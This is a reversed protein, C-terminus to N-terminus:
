GVHLFMQYHLNLEFHLIFRNVETWNNKIFNKLITAALLRFTTNVNEHIAIFVLSQCFGPLTKEKNWFNEAISLCDDKLNLLLFVIIFRVMEDFKPNKM